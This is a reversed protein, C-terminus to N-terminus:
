LSPVIVHEIYIIVSYFPVGPIFSPPNCLRVKTGKYLSAKVGKLPFYNAWNFYGDAPDDNDTTFIIVSNKLMAKKGWCILLRFQFFYVKYDSFSTICVTFATGLYM